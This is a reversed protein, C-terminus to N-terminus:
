HCRTWSWASRAPLPTWCERPGSARRTCRVSRTTPGPSPSSGEAVEAVVVQWEHGDVEGVDLHGAGVFRPAPCGAPLAQLVTAEQRYAAVLHPNRSSGAKAFVRRGDKLHVVAAFRGTFGSGPPEAAREVPSGAALEVAARVGAPLEGWRPRLCTATYDVLPVPPDPAALGHQGMRRM